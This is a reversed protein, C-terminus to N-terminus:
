GSFADTLYSFFEKAAGQDNLYLILHREDHIGSTDYESLVEGIIAANKRLDIWENGSAMPPCLIKHVPKSLAMDLANRFAQSLNASSPVDSDSIGTAALIVENFIGAEFEISAVKGTSLPRIRELKENLESGGKEKLIRGLGRRLNLDSSVPVIALEGSLNELKISAIEVTLNKSCALSGAIRVAENGTSENVEQIREELDVPDIGDAGRCLTFHALAKEPDGTLQYVLGLNYVADYLEPNLDLSQRYGRIAEEYCGEEVRRCGEAFYVEALRGIVARSETIRGCAQYAEALALIYYEDDDIEVAQELYHIAMEPNSHRLFIEGLHFCADSHDPDIELVCGLMECGDKFKGFDLLVLAHHFLADRAEDSNLEEPFPENLVSCLTKISSYLHYLSSDRRIADIYASRAERLKGCKQLIMGMNQHPLSNEPDLEIAKRFESIALDDEGLYMLCIALSNQFVGMGPLLNRARELHNRAEQYNKQKMMELGMFYHQAACDPDLLLAKTFSDTAADSKEIRSLCIGFLTHYCPNNPSLRAAKEMHLLASGPNGLELLIQGLTAQYIHNEPFHAILRSYVERAKELLQNQSYIRGLVELIQPTQGPTKMIIELESLGKDKQGAKLLVIARGLKIEPNHPEIDSAKRLTAFSNEPESLQSHIIAKNVLFDVNDPQTLLAKEILALAERYEKLYVHVQARQDQLGPNSPFLALGEDLLDAAERNLSMGLYLKALDAYVEAEGGDLLSKLREVEGQDLPLPFHGIEIKGKDM